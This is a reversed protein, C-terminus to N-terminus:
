CRNYNTVGDWTIGNTQAWAKQACTASKGGASWGPDTFDIQAPITKGSSSTSYGAPVNSSTLTVASMNKGSSQVLCSKNDTAINWFDPCTNAVPPFTAVSNKKNAMNIGLFTLILILIIVAISLVIIYFTDM